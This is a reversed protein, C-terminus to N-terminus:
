RGERRGPQWGHVALCQNLTQMRALEVDATSGPQAAAAQSAEEECTARDRAQEAPTTGAPPQWIPVCGALLLALILPWRIQRM